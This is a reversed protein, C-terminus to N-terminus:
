CAVWTRCTCVCQSGRSRGGGRGRFRVLGFCVALLRGEASSRVARVRAELEAEFRAALVGREAEIAAAVRREGDAGGGSGVGGCDGDDSDGDGGAGGGGSAAASAAVAAAAAQQNRERLKGFAKRSAELTTRGIDDLERLVPCPDPAERLQRYVSLFPAEAKKARSSLADIEGKFAKVLADAAHRLRTAAESGGEGEGDAVPPPPPASLMARFDRVQQALDRRGALSAEAREAIAVAHETLLAKLAPLNLSAFSEELTACGQLAVEFDDLMSGKAKESFPSLLAQM